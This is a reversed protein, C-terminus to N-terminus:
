VFSGERTCERIAQRLAPTDEESHTAYAHEIAAEILEEHTQAGIAVSCEADNIVDRCLVFMSPM